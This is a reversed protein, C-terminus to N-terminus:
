IFESIPKIQSWLQNWLFSNNNRKTKQFLLSIHEAKWHWVSNWQGRICCNFIERALRLDKPSSYAIFFNLNVSLSPCPPGKTCPLLSTNRRPQEDSSVKAPWRFTRRHGSDQDGLLLLTWGLGVMRTSSRLVSLNGGGAKPSGSIMPELRDCM